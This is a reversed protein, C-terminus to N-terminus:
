EFAFLSMFVVNIVNAATLDATITDGDNVSDGSCAV